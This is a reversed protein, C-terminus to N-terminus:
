DDILFQHAITIIEPSVSFREGLKKIAGIKVNLELLRKVKEAEFGVAAVNRFASEDFTAPEPAFAGLYAISEAWRTAALGKRGLVAEDESTLLESLTKVLQAETTEPKVIDTIQPFDSKTEGSM